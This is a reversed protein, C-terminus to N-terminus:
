SIWFETKSLYFKVEVDEDNTGHIIYDDTTKEIKSVYLNIHDFIEDDVVVYFDYIEGVEISSVLYNLMIALDAETLVNAYRTRLNEEVQILDISQIKDEVIEGEYVEIELKELDEDRWLLGGSDMSKKQLNMDFFVVDYPYEWEEDVGVIIGKAGIFEKTEDNSGVIKIFDWKELNLVIGGRKINTKNSSYLGQSTGSWDM